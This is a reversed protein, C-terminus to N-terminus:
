FATISGSPSMPDFSLTYLLAILVAAVGFLVVQAGGSLATSDDTSQILERDQDDNDDFDTADWGLFRKAAARQEEDRKPDNPAVIRVGPLISRLDMEERLADEYKKKASAVREEDPRSRGNDDSGSLQLSEVVRLADLADSRRKAAKSVANIRLQLLTFIISILLFASAAPLNIMPEFHKISTIGDLTIPANNNPDLSSSIPFPTPKTHTTHSLVHQRPTIFAAM